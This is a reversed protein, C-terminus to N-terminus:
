KCLDKRRTDVLYQIKWESNLKVLQFSNVGCHSFKGQYYFSYPTWAIALSGDTKVVDFVIREDLIDKKSNSVFQIFETLMENRIINKNDNDKAITQLIASDAFCSRLMKGDSIRMATFLKSVVSKVSDEATQGKMSVSFLFVTLIILLAKM